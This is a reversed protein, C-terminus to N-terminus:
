EGESRGLVREIRKDPVLWILAVTVYLAESVVPMVFAFVIGAIYLVPSIRGKWDRGIARAFMSDPGELRIIQRALVYYALAPLLLAVGYVAVPVPMFHNDGMWATAFPVLSLCFLLLNNAWLVAGDVRRVAQFMHHHNNWYIAVYIFSLVYSFMAPAVSLLASLEASHPPRLELVMITIIIAIVGDSFAELRNRGM